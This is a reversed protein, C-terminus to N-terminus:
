HVEEKKFNPKNRYLKLNNKDISGENISSVETHSNINKEIPTFNIEEMQPIISILPTTIINYYKNLQLSANRFDEINMKGGFMQLLHRSPALKIKSCNNNTLKNYLLHLLSYKEWKDYMKENFIYAAACNFSCFCGWLYFTDKVYKIPIGIPISNFNHCCWYCAINNRYDM